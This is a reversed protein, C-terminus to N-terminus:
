ANYRLFESVNADVTPGLREVLEDRMRELRGAKGEATERTRRSSNESFLAKLGGSRLMSFDDFTKPMPLQWQEDDPMIITPLIRRFDLIRLSSCRGHNIYTVSCRNRFRIQFSTRAVDTGGGLGLFRTSPGTPIYLIPYAPIWVM